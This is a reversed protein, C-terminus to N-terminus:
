SASSAMGNRAAPEPRAPAHLTPAVYRAWASLFRGESGSGAATNYDRKWVAAHGAIDGAPALPHPSRWYILRAIATAYALNTALQTQAAPRSARFSEAIGRLRPRFRLFSEFLDDHSAPEIQYLGLAPGSQQRLRTVGAITSEVAVTGVLLEAAADSRLAPAAAALQGLVPAIVQVRLDHADIM